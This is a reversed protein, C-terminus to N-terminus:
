HVPCKIKDDFSPYSLTAEIANFRGGEVACFLADGLEAEGRELALDAKVV